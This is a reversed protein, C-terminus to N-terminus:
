VGVCDVSAAVTNSLKIEMKSVNGSSIEGWANPLTLYDGLSEGKWVLTASNTNRRMYYDFVRQATQQGIDPSVLTAQDVTIINQKDTTGVYPNKVYYVTTTDEYGGDSKATYKHATVRVETVIASVNMKVGEYTQSFPVTKGTSPLNFIRIKNSGDTSACVGWAFLIQQIADRKSCPNILGTRQVDVVDQEYEIEFDDGVIEELLAKASKKNYYGGDFQSESLVGIADYCDIDYVSQSARTYGDIYYVGILSNDNSVEVPQKFQFMYEINSRNDLQWKLTSVPIEQSILGSQNVISASRIDSMGFERYIGFIIHELRAYRYPLSTKNLTVVLKNYGIVTKSCVFESSDPTFNEEAIKTTGQYWAITISTCYGGNARDFVFTLGTSTHQMTFTMTIVPKNTFTGDAGSMETSQFAVPQSWAYQFEGNLGWYGPELSIIPEPEVGGPLLSVNSQTTASASSVTADQAAKPAIDRYVIKTKSM